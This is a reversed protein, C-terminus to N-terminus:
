VGSRLLAAQEKLEDMREKLVKFAEDKKAVAPVRALVKDSRTAEMKLSGDTRIVIACELDDITARLKDETLDAVAEQEMAWEFRVTEDFGARRALNRVGMEFAAVESARRQAKSKRATLRLRQLAGFRELLDIQRQKEGKALPPIGLARAANLDGKEVMRKELESVTVKGLLADAYLQARAHGNNTSAFKAAGYLTEWTETGVAEYARYFWDCDVAGDLLEEATLPTEFGLEGAWLERSNVKWEYDNSRTHAYIWAVADRLNPIGAAHAVFPVWAPKMLTIELLRDLPIAAAKMVETFREPTDSEDPISIQILHVLVATRTVNPKGSGSRAPRRFPAKGLAKLLRQLHRAGHLSQLQFAAYSWIEPEEGRGLELEVIRDEIRRLAKECAPFNTMDAYMGYPSTVGGLDDFARGLDYEGFARDGIFFWIFEDEIMIGEEFLIVVQWAHLRMIGPNDQKRNRILKWLRDLRKKEPNERWDILGYLRDGFVLSWNRQDEPLRALVTESCDFLYDVLGEPHGSEPNLLVIWKCLNQLSMSAAKISPPRQCGFLVTRMTPHTSGLDGVLRDLAFKLRVMEFGDPDRLGPPRTQWWEALEIAPPFETLQDEKEKEKEKSGRPAPVLRLDGLREPEDSFHPRTSPIMVDVRELLWQDLAEILRLTVPSHVIVDLERAPVPQALSDFDVLGFANKLNPPDSEPMPGVAKSLVEYARTEDKTTPAYESVGFIRAAVESSGEKEAIQRLIEIGALREGASRSGLLKPIFRSLLSESQRSILQTVLLRKRASKGKLVPALLKLAEVELELDAVAKYASEVVDMNRDSLFKLLLDRQAPLQTGEHDKLWEEWGEPNDQFYGKNSRIEDENLSYRKLREIVAFRARNSLKPLLKEIVAESGDPFSTALVQELGSLDLKLGAFPSPYKELKPKAPMAEFYARLNEFIAPLEDTRASAMGYHSVLLSALNAVRLDPDTLYHYTAKRRKAPPCLRLFHVAAIRMEPSLGTSDEIRSVAADGDRFAEAWLALFCDGAEEPLEGIGKSAREIREVWREFWPAFEKRSFDMWEWDDKFQYVLIESVVPFRLLQHDRITGLFDRYAGPHIGDRHSLMEALFEPEMAAGILLQNFRKWLDPRDACFVATFLCHTERGGKKGQLREEFGDVLRTAMEGDPHRTLVVSSLYGLTDPDYHDSSFLGGDSKVLEGPWEMLEVLGLDPYPGVYILLKRLWNMLHREEEAQTLRFHFSIGREGPQGDRRAITQPDLHHWALEVEEKLGPFLTAWVALRNEKTLKRIVELWPPVPDSRDGSPFFCKAVEPSIERVADRMPYRWNEFRNPLNKESM